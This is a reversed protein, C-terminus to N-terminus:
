GEKIWRTDHQGMQDYEEMTIVGRKDLGNLKAMRNFAPHHQMFYDFLSQENLSYDLMRWAYQTVEFNDSGIAADFERGAKAKANRIMMDITAQRHKRTMDEPRIQQGERTTWFVEQETM